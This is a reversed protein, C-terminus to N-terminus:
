RESGAGSRARPLWFLAIEGEVETAFDGPPPAIASAAHFKTGISPIRHLVAFGDIVDLGTPLEVIASRADDPFTPRSLWLFPAALPATRDGPNAGSSTSEAVIAPAVFL